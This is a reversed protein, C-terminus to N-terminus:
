ELYFSNFSRFEGNYAIIRANVTLPYKDNLETIKDASTGFITVTMIGDEINISNIFGVVSNGKKNADNHLLSNAINVNETLVKFVENNQLFELTSFIENKDVEVIEGKFNKVTFSDAIPFTFVKKKPRKPADAAAAKKTFPKKNNNGANNISYQSNNKYAM